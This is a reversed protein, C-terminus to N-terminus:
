MCRTVPILLIPAYELAKSYNSWMIPSPIWKPPLQFIQSDPKLSTSVLWLFPLSFVLSGVILPTHTVFAELIRKGTSSGARRRDNMM